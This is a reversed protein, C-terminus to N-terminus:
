VNDPTVQLEPLTVSFFRAQLLLWLFFGDKLTWIAFAHHESDLM